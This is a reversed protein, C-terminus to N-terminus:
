RVAKVIWIFVAIIALAVLVVILEHESVALTM